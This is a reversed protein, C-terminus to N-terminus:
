IPLLDLWLFTQAVRVLGDMLRGYSHLEQHAFIIKATIPQWGQVTLDSLCRQAKFTGLPNESILHSWGTIWTNGALVAGEVREGHGGASPSEVTYWVDLKGGAVNRAGTTRM